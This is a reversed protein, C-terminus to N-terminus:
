DANGRHPAFGSTSDLMAELQRFCAKFIAYKEAILSKQEEIQKAMEDLAHRQQTREEELERIRAQSPTYYSHISSRVPLVNPGVQRVRAAYKPKNGHAQAYANNPTWRVTGETVSSTLAPDTPLLEKMMECRERVVENAYDGDKKTHTTIYAQARTPTTGLSLTEEHTARAFSMSGTCHPTNNKARLAKMYAAYEQNKPDCWKDLLVDLDDANYQSVADQGMRAKVINPTDGPQIKLTDKVSHRWSKLKVGM